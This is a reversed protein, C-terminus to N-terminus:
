FYHLELGFPNLKYENMSLYCRNIKIKEFYQLENKPIFNIHKSELDFM